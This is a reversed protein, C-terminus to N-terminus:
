VHDKNKLSRRKLRKHRERLLTPLVFFARAYNGGRSKPKSNNVTLGDDDDHDFADDCGCVDCDCGDDDLRRLAVVTPLIFLTIKMVTMRIMTIMRLM